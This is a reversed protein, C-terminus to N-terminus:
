EYNESNVFDTIAKKREFFYDTNKRKSNVLAYLIEMRKDKEQFGMMLLNIKEKVINPDFGPHLYDFGFRFLNM